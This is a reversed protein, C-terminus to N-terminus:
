AARWTLFTCGKHQEITLESTAECGECQFRIALGSRRASPNRTWQSLVKRREVEGSDIKTVTTLPADEGRDYVTVVDHHLYNAGCNPCRLADAYDTLGNGSHIVATFKESM